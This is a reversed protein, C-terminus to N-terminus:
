PHQLDHERQLQPVQGVQGPVAGLAGAGTSAVSPRAAIWRTGTLPPPELLQDSPRLGAAASRPPAALRQPRGARHGRHGRAAVLLLVLDEYVLDRRVAGASQARHLLAARSGRDRGRRPTVPTTGCAPDPLRHPRVPAPGGGRLYSPSGTPRRSPMWPTTRGTGVGARLVEDIVADILSEKTPFRRYLTGVGVGARQAIVRRVRGRGSEDFAGRAAAVSRTGTAPPMGVFSPKNPPPHEDAKPSAYRRPGAGARCPRPPARPRGDARGPHSKPIFLSAIAAAGTTVALFAFGRTYGSEAPRSGACSM